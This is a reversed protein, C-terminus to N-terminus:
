EVRTSILIICRGGFYFSHCTSYSGIIVMSVIGLTWLPSWYKLIFVRKNRILIDFIGHVTM